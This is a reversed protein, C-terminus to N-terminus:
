VRKKIKKLLAVAKTSRQHKLYEKLANIADQKKGMKDKIRAFMLWSNESKSDIENTILSWKLAKEYKKSHYFKEAIKMSFASNNTAYFKKKIFSLSSGDQSTILIRNKSKHTKKVKAIVPKSNIHQTTEEHQVLPQVLTIGSLDLSSLESFDDEQVTLNISNGNIEREVMELSINDYSLSLDDVANFSQIIIYTSLTVIVILLFLYKKLKGDHNGAVLAERREAESVITSIRSLKNDKYM